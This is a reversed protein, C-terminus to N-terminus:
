PDAVQNKYNESKRYDGHGTHQTTRSILKEMEHHFVISGNVEGRITAEPTKQSRM